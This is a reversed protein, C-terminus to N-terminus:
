CRVALALVWILKYWAAHPGVAAAGAYWIIEDKSFFGAFPWIGAIALTGIWMTAWTIPMHRRLGGMNRM